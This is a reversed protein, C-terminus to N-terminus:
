IRKKIAIIIKTQNEKSYPEIEIHYTHIIKLYKVKNIIFRHNGISFGNIHHGNYEYIKEESNEKLTNILESDYNIANITKILLDYECIM